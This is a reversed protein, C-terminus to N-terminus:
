LQLNFNSTQFSFTATQCNFASPQLKVQIDTVPSGTEDKSYLLFIQDGTFGGQNLDVEVTEYGAQVPPAEGRRVSKLLLDTIPLEDKAQSRKLCLYIYPSRERGANLDENLRIYGTPPTIHPATGSGSIARIDTIPTYRLEIMNLLLEWFFEKRVSVSNCRKCESVEAQWGGFIRKVFNDPPGGTFNEVETMTMMQNVVFNAFDTVDHQRGARYTAPLAKQLLLSAQSQKQSLLLKAFLEQIHGFVKRATSFFFFYPFNLLFLGTM